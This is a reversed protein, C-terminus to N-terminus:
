APSSVNYMYNLMPMKEVADEDVSMGTHNSFHVPVATVVRIWCCKCPHASFLTGEYGPLSRPQLSSAPINNCLASVYTGVVILTKFGFM